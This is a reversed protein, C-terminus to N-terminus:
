RNLLFAGLKQREERTMDTENGLPMTDGNVAQAIIQAAHRHIDDISGLIM